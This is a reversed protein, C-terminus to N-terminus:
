PNEHPGGDANLSMAQGLLKFLSQPLEQLNNIVLSKGPLLSKISHSQLGLGYLEFGRRQAEEIAAQANPLHNPQGDTLILILKRKEKRAALTQMVWWLAEGLPTGGESSLSFEHHMRQGHELIPAVTDVNWRKSLRNRPSALAKGGPFVTAGVSVGPVSDLAECLAYASLSVLQIPSGSMSGSADLLLHVATDLGIRPSSRRFVKPDGAFLRHLRNTDLRGRYGAQVQKLTLSQLLGTLRCKLALSALRAEQLDLCSLTPFRKPGVQAVNLGESISGLERCADGLLKGLIDGINRPLENEQRALLSRLVSATQDGARQGEPANGQSEMMSGTSALSGAVEAQESEEQSESAASSVKGAEEDDETGTEPSPDPQQGAEGSAQDSDNGDGAADTGGPQSPSSAAAQQADTKSDRRGPLGGAAGQIALSQQQTDSGGNKAVKLIITTAQPAPPNAQEHFFNRIRRAFLIATQTDPCDAKIEDLITELDGLVTPMHATIRKNLDDLRKSLEPVAWSRVKLLLWDLLDIDPPSGGDNAPPKAFLHRILWQFNRRCGPYKDGLMKEGRWDEIINWIHHELPTLAAKKLQKFNTDRIHAAEHDLFARALAMTEPPSDLPLTPLFITDGNTMAETGGIIVKLGYKRGLAAAVLPLSRIFHDNM